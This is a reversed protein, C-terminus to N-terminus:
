LCLKSEELSPLFEDFEGNGNHQTGFRCIECNLKAEVNNIAYPYSFGSGSIDIETGDSSITTFAYTFGGEYDDGDWVHLTINIPQPEANEFLVKGKKNKIELNSISVISSDACISFNDNLFDSNPTFINPVFIKGNGATFETPTNPCSKEDEDKNCSEGLLLAFVLLSLFKVLKM